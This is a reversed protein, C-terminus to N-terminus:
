HPVAERQVARAGDPVKHAKLYQLVDRVWRMCCEAHCPELNNQDLCHRPCDENLLNLRAPRAGTDWHEFDVVKVALTSYCNPCDHTLMFLGDVVSEVSAQYGNVQLNSDKVFQELTPWEYGCMSCIKFPKTNCM